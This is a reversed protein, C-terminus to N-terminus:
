AEPFLGLERDRLCLARTRLPEGSLGALSNEASPCEQAMYRLVMGVMQIATRVQSKNCVVVVASAARWGRGPAPPLAVARSSSLRDHASTYGPPFRRVFDLEKGAAALAMPEALVLNSAPIGGSQSAMPQVWGGGKAKCSLVGRM